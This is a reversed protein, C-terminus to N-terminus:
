FPYQFSKLVSDIEEPQQTGIMVTKGNSLTLKLGKDGAVNYCWGRKSSYRLGWGGYHWLPDYTVLEAKMIKSKPFQKKTFLGKYHINIREASIVTELVMRKFWIILVTFVVILSSLAIIDETKFEERDTFAIAFQSIVMVIPAILIAWVWIQNFRQEEKFEKM